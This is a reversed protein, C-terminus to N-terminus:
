EWLGVDIGACPVSIHAGNARLPTEADGSPRGALEPGHEGADVSARRMVGYQRQVHAVELPIVYDKLSDRVRMLMDVEDPHNPWMGAATMEDQVRTLLLQLATVQEPTTVPLDFETPTLQGPWELTWRLTAVARRLAYPFRGWPAFTVLVGGAAEASTTPVALPGVVARGGGEYRCEDPEAGAVGAEGGREVAAIM